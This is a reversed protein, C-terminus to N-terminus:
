IDRVEELIPTKPLERQGPGMMPPTIHEYSGLLVGVVLGMVYGIAASFIVKGACTEMMRNPDPQMLRNAGLPDFYAPTKVMSNGAALSPLYSTGRRMLDEDKAAGNDKDASPKGDCRIPAGIAATWLSCTIGTAGALALRLDTISGKELVAKFAKTSHM